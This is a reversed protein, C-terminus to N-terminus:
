AAEPVAAKGLKEFIHGKVHASRGNLQNSISSIPLGLERAAQGQSAYITGTTLDQIINGPDGLAEVYVEITQHARNLVGIQKLQMVAVTVKGDRTLMYTVGGVVIATVGCALYTKKNNQWHQKLSM